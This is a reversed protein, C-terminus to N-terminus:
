CVVSSVRLLELLGDVQDILIVLQPFQNNLDALALQLNSVVYRLSQDSRALITPSLSEMSLSRRMPSEVGSAADTISTSGRLFNTSSSVCVSHPRLRHFQQCRRTDVSDVTQQLLQDHDRRPDVSKDNIVSPQDAHYLSPFVPVSHRSIKSVSDNSPTPKQFYLGSQIISLLQIADIQGQKYCM